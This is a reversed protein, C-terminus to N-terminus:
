RESAPRLAPRTDLPKRSILSAKSNMVRREHHEEPTLFRFLMRDDSTADRYGLITFNGIRIDVNQQWNYDKLPYLFRGVPSLVEYEAEEEASEPPKERSEWKPLLKKLRDLSDEKPPTPEIIPIEKEPQEKSAEFTADSSFSSPHILFSSAFVAAIIHRKM